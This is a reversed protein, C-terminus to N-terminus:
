LLHDAVKRAFMKKARGKGRGEGFCEPALIHLM